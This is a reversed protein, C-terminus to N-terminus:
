KKRKWINKSEKIKLGITLIQINIKCLNPQRQAQIKYGVAKPQHVNGLRRRKLLGERERERKRIYIGRKTVITEQATTTTTTTFEFASNQTQIVKQLWRPQFLPLLLSFFFISTQDLLLPLSLSLLGSLTLTQLMCGLTTLGM